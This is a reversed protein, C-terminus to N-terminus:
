IVTVCTMTVRNNEIIDNTGPFDGQTYCDTDFTLTEGPQELLVNLGVICITIPMPSDDHQRSQPSPKMPDYLGLPNRRRSFFGLGIACPVPVVPVVQQTGRHVCPVVHHFVPAQLGFWWFHVGPLQILAFFFRPQFAAGVFTQLDKEDVFFDAESLLMQLIAPCM